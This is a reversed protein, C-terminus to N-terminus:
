SCAARGGARRRCTRRSPRSSASRCSSPSRSSRGGARRTSWRGDVVLEAIAQRLTTRPVVARGPRTRNAVTGPEQGAILELIQNKVQYYKPVKVM